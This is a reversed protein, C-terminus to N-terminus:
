SGEQNLETTCHAVPEVHDENEVFHAVGDIVRVEKVEFGFALQMKRSCNKPYVTEGVM